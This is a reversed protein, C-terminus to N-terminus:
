LWGRRWFIFLQLATAGLMISVGAALAVPSTIHNVLVLFNMGFFGTLFTLPLFLSAVVTLQKTTVNLRNSVTSLYIDMAGTLLDRLSDVTEYQRVIHDAVDRWYLTIEQAGVDLSHTLVRQFVDRQAGLERRLWTIDHKLESIRVLLRTDPRELISDQLADITEDLRELVPFMGDVIADMVLYTLFDTAGRTLDPSKVIRKRLEDLEPAPTAHATVCIDHGHYIHHERLEIQDDKWDASVLVIFQSEPFVDLKPRGSTEQIDEMTLPHLGVVDRLLKLDDADPAELDLWFGEKHRNQLCAALSEETPNSEAGNVTVLTRM